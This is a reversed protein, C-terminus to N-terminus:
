RDLHIQEEPPVTLIIDALVEAIKAGIEAINVEESQVRSELLEHIECHLCESM